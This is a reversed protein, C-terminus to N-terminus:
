LPLQIVRINDHYAIRTVPAASTAKAERYIGWKLYGHQGGTGTGNYTISNPFSQKLTYSYEGPLCVYYNIYGTNDKAWKVDIRFDIWQNSYPMVDSILEVQPDNQQWLYLTNRKVGLRITSGATEKLQFINDTFAPNPSTYSEWDKLLVSFEYRREEGPLYRANTVNDADAESRYAGASYYASDTRNVKHAIAYTGPSGTMYAADSASAHTAIIGTINSNLTGSEYNVNLLTDGNNFTLNQHANEATKLSNANKDQAQSALNYDNKSCATIFFFVAIVVCKQTFISKKKM